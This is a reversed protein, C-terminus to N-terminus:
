TKVYETGYIDGGKVLLIIAFHGIKKPKWIREYILLNKKCFILIQEYILLFVKDLVKKIIKIYFRSGIKIRKQFNYSGFFRVSHLM